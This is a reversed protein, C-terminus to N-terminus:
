VPLIVLQFSTPPLSASITSDATLGSAARTVAELEDGAGGLVALVALLQGGGAVNDCGYGGVGICDAICRESRKLIGDLRYADAAYSRALCGHLVAAINDLAGEDKYGLFAGGEGLRSLLEKVEGEGCVRCLYDGRGACNRRVSLFGPIYPPRNRGGERSKM